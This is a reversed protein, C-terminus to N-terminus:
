IVGEATLAAMRDGDLGLWEGFVEANHQGLLPAPRRYVAPADPMSWLRFPVKIRGIVPHDVEQFFERAALHPCRALDQPEQVVGFLMHFKESATRFLEQMTRERTAELVLRDLDEGHLARGAVTSFREEKLAESDFFEIIDGWEAGGGTQWIFYGDKCRQVQGYSSGSPARRGQVAGVWGYMPQHIVLTSTVVEQLSIDVQQGEGMLDRVHLATLAGVTASLGGEYQSQMGGHKLPEREATGSISMIGSLAYTVIEESDYESYPGTQGFPTISVMILRPNERALAAYDLGLAALYGPKFSEVVIDTKRVMQRLLERGQAHQLDLKVGRKNLNALLYILSKEPHSQNGWHPAMARAADGAIPEVKVVDAGYDALIKACIPGALGQSLDLVKVDDLTAHLM